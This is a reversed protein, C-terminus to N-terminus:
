KREPLNMIYEVVRQSKRKNNLVLSLMTESIGLERAIEKQSKKARFIRYKLYATDVQKSKKRGRNYIKKVIM